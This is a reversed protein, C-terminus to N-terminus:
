SIMQGPRGGQVYTTLGEARGIAAIVSALEMHRNSVHIAIAGHPTLRALYGILAERTLLIFRFQMPRFHM